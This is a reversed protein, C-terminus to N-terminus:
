LEINRDFLKTRTIKTQNLFDAYDENSM